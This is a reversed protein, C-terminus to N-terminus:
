AQDRFVVEVAFGPGGQRNEEIRVVKGEAHVRVPQSSRSLPPFCIDLHLGVGLSPTVDACVFIGNVAVDRTTGENKRLIGDSHEWEFFVPVSLQYRRSRRLEM